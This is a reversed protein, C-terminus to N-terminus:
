VYVRIRAMIKKVRNNRPLQRVETQTGKQLSYFGDLKFCSTRRGMDETSYPSTNDTEYFKQM